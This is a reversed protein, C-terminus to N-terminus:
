EEAGRDPAEKVKPIIEQDIKNTAFVLLREIDDLYQKLHKPLDSVKVRAQDILKKVDNCSFEIEEKTTKYEKQALADGRDKTPRQEKFHPSTIGTQEIKEDAAASGLNNVPGQPTDTEEKEQDDAEDIKEIEAWALNVLKEITVVYDKNEKALTTALETSITKGQGPTFQETRVKEVIENFQAKFSNVLEPDEKETRQQAEYITAILSQARKNHETIVAVHETHKESLQGALVLCDENGKIHTILQDEVQDIIAQFDAWLTAPNFETPKAAAKEEKRKSRMNSIVDTYNLEGSRIKEKTAEDATHLLLMSDVWQRSQSVYITIDESTLNKYDGEEKEEIDTILILDGTEKHKKFMTKFRHCGEAWQLPTLKLNHNTHFVQRLRDAESYGHPNNIVEVDEVKDGNKWHKKNLVKSIYRIARYRREGDTLQFVMITEGTPKNRKLIPEDVFDGKIIEPSDEGNLLAEALQPIELIIEWDEESMGEPKIRLNFGPRIRILELPVKWTNRGNKIETNARIASRGYTKTIADFPLTLISEEQLPQNKENKKM